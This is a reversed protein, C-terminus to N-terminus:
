PMPYEQPDITRSPSAFFYQVKSLGLGVLVLIAPILLEM